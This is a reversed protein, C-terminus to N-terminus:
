KVNSSLPSPKDRSALAAEIGKLKKTTNQILREQEDVKVAIKAGLVDLTERLIDLSDSFDAIRKNIQQVDIESKMKEIQWELEDLRAAHKNLAPPIKEALESAQDSLGQLGKGQEKSTRQLNDNIQNIAGIQTQLAKKVSEVKKEQENLRHKLTDLAKVQAELAKGLVNGKEEQESLRGKMEGLENVRFAVNDVQHYLESLRRDKKELTGQVMRLQMTAEDIRVNFDAQSKQLAIVAQQKEKEIRKLDALLRTLAKGTEKKLVAVAQRNQKQLKQLDSQLRAVDKELAKKKQLEQQEEELAVMKISYGCGQFLIMGMLFFIALHLKM